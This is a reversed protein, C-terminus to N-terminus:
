DDLVTSTNIKLRSKNLSRPTPSNEESAVNLSGQEENTSGSTCLNVIKMEIHVDSKVGPHKRRKKIPIVLVFLMQSMKIPVWDVDQDMSSWCEISVQDVTPRYDALLPRVPANISILQSNVSQRGLHRDLTFRPTSPSDILLWKLTNILPMWRSKVSSPM